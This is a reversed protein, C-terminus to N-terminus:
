PTCGIRGMRYLYAEVAVFPHLPLQALATNPKLSQVITKERAFVGGCQPLDTVLQSWGLRLCEEVLPLGTEGPSQGIIIAFSAISVAQRDPLNLEAAGLREVVWHASSLLRFCDDTVIQVNPPRIANLQDKLPTNGSRRRSEKACLDNLLVDVGTQVGVALPRVDLLTEPLVTCQACLCRDVVRSAKANTLVDGLPKQRRKPRGNKCHRPRWIM